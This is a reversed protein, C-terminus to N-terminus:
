LQFFDYVLSVKERDASASFTAGLSELFRVVRLGTNRRNGAYAAAALFNAAGKQAGSESSSGGLVAFRLTAIQM